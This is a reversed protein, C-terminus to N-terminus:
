KDNESLVSTMAIFIDQTKINMGLAVWLCFLITNNSLYPFMPKKNQANNFFFVKTQRGCLLYLEIANLHWAIGNVVCVEQLPYSHNFDIMMFDSLFRGKEQRIWSTKKNSCHCIFLASCNFISDMLIFSNEDNISKSLKCFNCFITKGLRLNLSENIAM